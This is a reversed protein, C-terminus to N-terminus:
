DCRGAPTCASPGSTMCQNFAEQGPCKYQAGNICCTLSQQSHQVNVDGGVTPVNGVPVAGLIAGAIDAGNPGSPQSPSSPEVVGAKARALLLEYERRNREAEAREAAPKKLEKDIVKKLGKTWSEYQDDIMLQGNPTKVTELGASGMYRVLYQTGSYEVAINLTVDGKDLRANIKGAEESETKFRRALLARIIAARVESAEQGELLIADAQTAPVFSTECGTALILAFPLVFSRLRAM